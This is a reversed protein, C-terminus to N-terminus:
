REVVAKADAGKVLFTIAHISIFLFGIPIALYPFTMPLGLGPSKQMQVTPSFSETFGIYVALLSFVLVGIQVITFLVRAKMGSLKDSFLDFAPMEFRKYAASAGLFTVWILLFRSLEGSWSFSSGLINRLLVDVLTVSLVVAVILITLWVALKYIMDSVITM